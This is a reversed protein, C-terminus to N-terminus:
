PREEVKGRFTDHCNKCANGLVRYQAALTEKDGAQALQAMKQAEVQFKHHTQEFAARETWVEEKAHTKGKDTGPPFWSLQQAGLSVIQEASERIVTLSPNEARLEDRINKFAKGIRRQDAIRNKIVEDPQPNQANVLADGGYGVLAVGM